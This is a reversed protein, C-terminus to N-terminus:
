FRGGWCPEAYADRYPTVQGWNYTSGNCTKLFGGVQKVKAATEYYMVEVMQGGAITSSAGLLGVATVASIALKRLSSM